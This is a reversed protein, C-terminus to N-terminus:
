KNLANKIKSIRGSLEEISEAMENAMETQITQYIKKKVSKKEPLSEFILKLLRDDTEKTRTIM